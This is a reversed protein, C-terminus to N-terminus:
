FQDALAGQSRKKKIWVTRPCPRQAMQITERREIPSPPPPNIYSVRREFLTPFDTGTNTDTLQSRRQFFDNQDASLLSALVNLRQVLM